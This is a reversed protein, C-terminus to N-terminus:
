QGATGKALVTPNTNSPASDFVTLHPALDAGTPTVKWEWLEGAAPTLAFVDTDNAPDIAGAMAGPITMNQVDTATSGNNPEKEQQDAVPGGSDGANGDAGGDQPDPDADGRPPRIDDLPGADEKDNTAPTNTSTETTSCAVFVLVSSAFWLSRM